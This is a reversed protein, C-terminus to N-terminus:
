DESTVDNVEGIDKVIVVKSNCNLKELRIEDSNAILGEVAEAIRSHIITVKDINNLTAIVAIIHPGSPDSWTSEVGAINFGVL